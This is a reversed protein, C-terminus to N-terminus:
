NSQIAVYRHCKWRESYAQCMSNLVEVVKTIKRTSECVRSHVTLRGRLLGNDSYIRPSGRGGGGGEGLVGEFVGECRPYPSSAKM